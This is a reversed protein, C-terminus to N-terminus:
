DPLTYYYSFSSSDILFCDNQKLALEGERWFFDVSVLRAFSLTMTSLFKPDKASELTVDFVKLTGQNWMDSSVAPPLFDLVKTPIKLTSVVRM